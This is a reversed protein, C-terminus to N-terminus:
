GGGERVPIKLFDDKNNVRTRWLAGIAGGASSGHRRAPVMVRHGGGVGDGFEFAQALADKGGEGCGAGDGGEGLEQVGGVVRDSEGGCLGEEVECEGFATLGSGM